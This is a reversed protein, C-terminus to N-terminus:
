ASNSNSPFAPSWEWRSTSCSSVVGSAPTSTSYDENKTRIWMVELFFLFISMGIIHVPWLIHFMTTLAFQLRSLYTFDM